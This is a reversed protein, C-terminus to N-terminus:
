RNGSRQRSQIFGDRHLHPPAYGAGREIMWSPSGSPKHTWVTGCILCQHFTASNPWEASRGMSVLYGHVPASACEGVLKVCDECRNSKRLEM